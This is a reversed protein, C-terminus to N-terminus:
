AITLEKGPRAMHISHLQVLAMKAIHTFAMMQAL